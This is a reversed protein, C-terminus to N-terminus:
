LQKLAKIESEDPTVYATKNNEYIVMGPKSGNPKKVNKRPAYDVPVLTSNRAKSYYAALNVAENLAKDTVPQGNTKIIVHSGPIDKTHLWIDNSKAFKLTLEDNQKNNKGVYIDFGDSSEFHLPKSTSLKKKPNRKKNIFGQESLEEKIQEIDTEDSALLIANMVTELYKLEEENKQIQDQLAVFTRKQKNYKKFYKQANEAPTLNPDIRIKILSYEPDYYNQLNVETMGKEISYINATILEGCIKLTERNEIDKITNWQMEKKKLCRDINQSIIKRLDQTKQQMRYTTDKESYFQELLKSMSEFSVTNFGELRTSTMSFFDIIKSKEDYYIANSFLSDKVNQMMRQFEVFVKSIEENPLQGAPTEPHTTARFCIETAMVPSIGNYSKYIIGQMNTQHKAEVIDLFEKEELELPNKKDSPPFIYKRAPLVERVSSTDHSIHKISDLIFDNEDILIINSHKGMIEIALKKISLDGMENMSEIHIFVIREFRPQTIDIIKGNNLHKRLVMCFLPATMPNNKTKQTMHIRPHSANATLLLKVNNRFSRVSVIIEDAEPQYIKDIRGNMVTEKLEHVISSIAIGDLAM